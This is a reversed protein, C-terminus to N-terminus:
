EGTGENGTDLSFKWKGDEKQWITVYTGKFLSDGMKMSYIGYTYGMDASQSVDAGQPQWTLSFSTDNVNSIFEVASAGIIPMRGPRLLVGDNRMYELFAKKMGAEKSRNSFDVDTQQIENLAKIREEEKKFRYDKCATLLLMVLAAICLHKAM